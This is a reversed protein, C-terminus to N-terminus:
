IFIDDDDDSPWKMTQPLDLFPRNTVFSGQPAEKNEKKQSELFKAFFPKSLQENQKM